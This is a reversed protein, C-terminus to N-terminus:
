PELQFELRSVSTATTAMCGAQGTLTRSRKELVDTLSEKKSVQSAMPTPRIKVRTPTPGCGATETSSYYRGASVLDAHKDQAVFFMGCTKDMKESCSALGLSYFGPVFDKHLKLTLQAAAVVEPVKYKQVICPPQTNARYMEPVYPDFCPKSTAYALTKDMGNMKYDDQVLKQFDACRTHTFQTPGSTEFVNEPRYKKNNREDKEADRSVLVLKLGKMNQVIEAARASQVEGTRPMADGEPMGAGGGRSQNSRTTLDAGRPGSAADEKEEEKEDEWMHNPVAYPNNWLFMWLQSISPKSNERLATIATTLSAPPDRTPIGSDESAGYLGADGGPM